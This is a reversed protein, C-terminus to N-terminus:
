GHVNERENLHSSVEASCSYYRRHRHHSYEEFRDLHFAQQYSSPLDRDFPHM